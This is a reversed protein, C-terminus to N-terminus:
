SREPLTGTGKYFEVVGRSSNRSPQLIKCTSPFLERANTFREFYGYFADQLSAPFQDSPALTAFVGPLPKLSHAPVRQSWRPETGGGGSGAGVEPTCVKHRYGPPPAKSAVPSNGDDKLIIESGRLNIGSPVMFFVLLDFVFRPGNELFHLCKM